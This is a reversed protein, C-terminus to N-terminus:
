QPPANSQLSENEDANVETIIQNLKNRHRGRLKCSFVTIIQVLDQVLEEEPSEATQNIIELTTNHLNAITQLLEWGFCLLRDKYLVVIKDVKDSEILNILNTLGPKTYDIGSGIDSIIEFPKGQASLYNSVVEIQRQLDDSQKKSSVRCYGIVKRPQTSKGLLQNLQEESYYRFGNAATHHPKLYGSKDWNRLTQLTVGCIKRFQTITYFRM